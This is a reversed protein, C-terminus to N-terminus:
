TRITLKFPLNIFQRPADPNALRHRVFAVTHQALDDIPQDLTSIPLQVPDLWPARDYGIIALDGPIKMGRRVAAAHLECALNLTPIALVATAGGPKGCSDLFREIITARTETESFAFPRPRLGRNLMAQEYFATIHAAQYHRLLAIKKHGQEIFHDIAQQVAGARDMAVMDSRVAPNPSFGCFVIPTRKSWAPVKPQGEWAFCVLAEVQLSQLTQIWESKYWPDHRVFETGLIPKFDTDHLLALLQNVLAVRIGDVQGFLGVLGSRGCRLGRAAMSPLYGMRRAISLIERRKATSIRTSGRLALAVANQSCGAKAAIDSQTTPSNSRRKVTM